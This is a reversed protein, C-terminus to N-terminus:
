MKVKPQAAEDAKEKALRDLKELWAPAEGSERYRREYLKEILPGVTAWVVDPVWAAWRPRWHDCRYINADVLDIENEHRICSRRFSIMPERNMYQKHVAIQWLHVCPGRSCCAHPADWPPKEDIEITAAGVSAHVHTDWRDHLNDGGDDEPPLVFDSLDTM